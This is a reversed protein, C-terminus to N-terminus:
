SAPTDTRRPVPRAAPKAEPVSPTTPVATKGDPTRLSELLEESLISARTVMKDLRTRFFGFAVLSPIAVALGGFTHWLAAAIGASLDSVKAQGGTHHLAYFAMIMGLVTGLLGVLPAINGIINLMEIRRFLNASNESAANELAERMAPYGLSARRLGADLTKGIFSTDTATFDTLERLQRANILSRIHEATDVPAIKSERLHISADIIMAISILSFAVLVGAVTWDLGILIPSPRYVSQASASAATQAMASHVMVVASSLFLGALLLIRFRSKAYSSLM